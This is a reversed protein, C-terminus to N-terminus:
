RTRTWLWTPGRRMRAQQLALSLRVSVLRTPRCAGMHPALWAFWQMSNHQQCTRTAHLM